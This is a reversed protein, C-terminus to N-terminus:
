LYTMGEQHKLKLMIFPNAFEVLLESRMIVSSSKLPERIGLLQGFWHYPYSGLFILIHLLTCVKLEYVMSSVM